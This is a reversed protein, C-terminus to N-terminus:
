LHFFLAFLAASLGIDFLTSAIRPFTHRIDPIYFVLAFMGWALPAYEAASDSLMRGSIIGAVTSFIAFLIGGVTITFHSLRFLRVSYFYQVNKTGILRILTRNRPSVAQESDAHDAQVILDPDFAYVNKNKFSEASLQCDVYWSVRRSESLLDGAHRGTIAYAHALTSFAPVVINESVRRVKRGLLRGVPLVDYQGFYVRDWKEPVQRWSELFAEMTFHDPFFADDEFVIASRLNRQAIERWITRHGLGCSIMAPFGFHRVFFTTNASLLSPEQLIVDNQEAIVRTVRFNYKRAFEEIRAWRDPRRELSLCFIGDFLDNLTTM